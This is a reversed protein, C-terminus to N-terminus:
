SIKSQPAKKIILMSMDFVKKEYGIYIQIFSFTFGTAASLKLVSDLLTKFVKDLSMNYM